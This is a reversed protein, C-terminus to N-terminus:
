LMERCQSEDIGKVECYFVRLICSVMILCLTPVIIQDYIWSVISFCFNGTTWLAEGMQTRLQVKHVLEDILKQAQKETQQIRHQVEYISQQSEKRSIGLVEELKGIRLVFQQIAQQTEVICQWYQKESDTLQDLRQQLQQQSTQTRQGTQQIEQRVQRQSTQLAEELQQRNLNSQRTMRQTDEVLRQNMQQIAQLIRDIQDQMQQRALRAEQDNPQVRELVEGMEGDAQQIRGQVEEMQQQIQQARQEFQQEVQQVRGLLAELQLRFQHLRDPNVLRNETGLLFQSAISTPLLQMAMELSLDQAGATLDQNDDTERISLSAVDGEVSATESEFGPVTSLERVVHSNNSPVGNSSSDDQNGYTVILELVVDPHHAIRLPNLYQLNEDTLLVVTDGGSRMIRRVHGFSLQIDMLLVVHQKSKLDLRTPISIIKSSSQARFAQSPTTSM